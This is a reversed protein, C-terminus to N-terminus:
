FDLIRNQLARWPKAMWIQESTSCFVIGDSSIQLQTIASSVHSWPNLQLLLLSLTAFSTRPVSVFDVLSISISVVEALADQRTLGLWMSRSFGVQKVFWHTLVCKQSNTVTIDKERHHDADHYHLIAFIGLYSLAQWLETSSLQVHSHTFVCVQSGCGLSM